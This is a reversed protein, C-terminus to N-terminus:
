FFTYLFDRLNEWMRLERWYSIITQVREENGTCNWKMIFNQFALCAANWYLLYVFIRFIHWISFWNVFTYVCVDCSIHIFWKLTRFNIKATIKVYNISDSQPTPINNQPKTNELFLQITVRHNSKFDM